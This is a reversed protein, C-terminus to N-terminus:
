SKPTFNEKHHRVTPDYDLKEDARNDPLELYGSLLCASKSDEKPLGDTVTMFCGGGVGM